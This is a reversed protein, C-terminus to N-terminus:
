WDGRRRRVDDLPVAYEKKTVKGKNTMLEKVEDDLISFEDVIYISGEEYDSLGVLGKGNEPDAVTVVKLTKGSLDRWNFTKINVNKINLM